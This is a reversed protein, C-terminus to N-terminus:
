PGAIKVDPRLLAKLRSELNAGTLDSARLTGDRDILFMVPIGSVNYKKAVPNKKAPGLVIQPWLIKHKEAFDRVKQQDEDLSIGIVAFKGDKGFEKHAKKLAPLEAVCPGCWTAWFDLLVVKGRFDSLKIDKGDVTKASFDPAAEAVQVGLFKDIKIMGLKPDGVPARIEKTFSIEM